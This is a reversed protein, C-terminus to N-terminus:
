NTVTVPVALRQGGKTSEISITRSADPVINTGKLSFDWAGAADVAITGIVPGALTPGNHITITNGPGPITSTGRIRGDGRTRFQAQTVTLTDPAVVNVTVTAPNSTAGHSDKVTYQFTVNGSTGPAPSFTITGNSNPTATGAAPPAVITVSGVNLTDGPDPDSDNALVEIV